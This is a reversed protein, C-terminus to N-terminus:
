LSNKHSSLSMQQTSRIMITMEKNLWELVMDFKLLLFSCLWDVLICSNNYEHLFFVSDSKNFILLWLVLFSLYRTYFIIPLCMGMFWIETLSARCTYFSRIPLNKAHFLQEDLTTGGYLTQLFITTLFRMLVAWCFKFKNLLLNDEVNAQSTPVVNAVSVLKRTIVSLHICKHILSDIM